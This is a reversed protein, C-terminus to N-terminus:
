GDHEPRADTRVFMSDFEIVRLSRRDITVPFMGTLSFGAEEYLALQELMPPMGEYIPLNAVESQMAVMDKVRTGAGRFAQVDYGQTDMKLYIRPDEIGELVEDLISDLRRVTITQSTMERLVPSWKKGFESSPLM